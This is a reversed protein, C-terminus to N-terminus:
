AAKQITCPSATDLEMLRARLLSREREFDVIAQRLPRRVSGQERLHADARVRLQAIVGDIRRVRHELRQRELRTTITM